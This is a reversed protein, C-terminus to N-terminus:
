HRGHGPQVRGNVSTVGNKNQPGTLLDHGSVDYLMLASALSTM